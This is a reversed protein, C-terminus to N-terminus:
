VDGGRVASSFGASAPFRLPVRERAVLVAFVAETETDEQGGGVQIYQLYREEVHKM